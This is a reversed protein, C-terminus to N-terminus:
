GWVELRLGPVSEYDRRNRTVLTAGHAVAIAAIRLDHTGVRLKQKRWERVLADAADTYPLLRLVRFALLDQELRQYAAM